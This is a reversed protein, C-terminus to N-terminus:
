ETRVSDARYIPCPEKMVVADCLSMCGHSEIAIRQNMDARARYLKTRDSDM